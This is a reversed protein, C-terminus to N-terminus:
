AAPGADPWQIKNEEAFKVLLKKLRFLAADTTSLLDVVMESGDPVPCWSCERRMFYAIHKAAPVETWLSSLMRAMQEKEHMPMTPEADDVLPRTKRRKASAVGDAMESPTAVAHHSPDEPRHLLRVNKRHRPFPIPTSYHAVAAAAAAAGGSVNKNAVLAEARNLLGHVAELEKASREQLLRREQSGHPAVAPFTTMKVNGRGRGGGARSM